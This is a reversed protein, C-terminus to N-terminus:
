APRGASDPAPHAGGSRAVRGSSVPSERPPHRRALDAAAITLAFAAVAVVVRVDNFAGWVALREQYDAALAGAAWARIEDHIPVTGFRTVLFTTLTLAVGGVALGRARGRAALALWCGALFTAVMLGQTVVGNLKMLETRFTLHVDLPVASFTPEVNAWGYFMTGALLGTTLQAAFAATRPFIERQM